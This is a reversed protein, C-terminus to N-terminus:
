IVPIMLSITRNVFLHNKTLDRNANDFREEEYGETGFARIVLLGSLRERSVLNLRDLLKQAKKFRPIVIAMLTGILLLMVLISVAITATMGPMNSSKAQARLIGGVGMIPAYFVLRIMVTCFMQIQTIDNTSRTILSSVSFRDFEPNSFSTVKDFVQGRLDRAVGSGIRAALLGVLIACVASALAILLMVAGKQLVYGMDGVAVGQSVLSSMYDPLALEAMAQGFLLAFALLMWGAYRKLHTLLKLM